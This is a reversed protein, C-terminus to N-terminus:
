LARKRPHLFPRALAGAILGAAVVALMWRSGLCLGIVRCNPLSKGILDFESRRAKLSDNDVGFLRLWKLKSIPALDTLGDPVEFIVLQSLRNLRAIGSIDRLEDCNILTLRQLNDLRQIASLDTLQSAKGM